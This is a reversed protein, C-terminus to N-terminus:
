NLVSSMCIHVAIQPTWVALDKTTPQLKTDPM